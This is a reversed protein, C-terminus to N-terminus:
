ISGRCYYLKKAHWYLSSLSKLKIDQFIKIKNIESYTLGAEERLLILLKQRKRKIEKRKTDAREIKIEEEKEFEKIVEERSKYEWENERRRVSGEERRKRRENAKIIEEIEGEEGLYEGIKTKKIEIKNKNNDLKSYGSGNFGSFYKFATQSLSSWKYSYIDKVKGARVPNELAYQIAKYLYKEGNILTSKYRDQFVYGRGGHRKRWYLAYSSNIQRMFNSLKGSSNQLIIHYHNDMVVYALINIKYLMAYKKILFIFYDKEVNSSFIPRGELGRNMVHHFAGIYTFRPKRM